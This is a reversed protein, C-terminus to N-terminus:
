LKGARRLGQLMLLQSYCSVQLAAVVHNNYFNVGPRELLEIIENGGTNTFYAGFEVILAKQEDSLPYNVKAM